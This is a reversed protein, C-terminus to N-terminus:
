HAPFAVRFGLSLDTEIARSVNRSVFRLGEPSDNWSGGRLVCYEWNDPKDKKLYKDEM